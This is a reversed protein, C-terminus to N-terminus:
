EQGAKIAAIIKDAGDAITKAVRVNRYGQVLWRLLYAASAAGGAAAIGDGISLSM